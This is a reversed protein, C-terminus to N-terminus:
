YYKFIANAINLVKNFNNYPLLKIELKNRVDDNEIDKSSLIGNRNLFLLFESNEINKLILTM